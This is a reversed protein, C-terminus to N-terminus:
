KLFIDKSVERSDSRSLSVNGSGSVSHRSIFHRKNGTIQLYVSPALLYVLVM